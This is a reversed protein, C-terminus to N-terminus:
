WNAIVHAVFGIASDMHGFHGGDYETYNGEGLFTKMAELNEYPVIDDEMDHYLFIRTGSSPLPPTWGSTLSYSMCIQEIRNYATSTGDIM